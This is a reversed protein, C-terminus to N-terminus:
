NKRRLFNTTNFVYAYRHDKNYAYDLESQIYMGQTPDDEPLENSLVLSEDGGSIIYKFCPKMSHHVLLKNFSSAVLWGQILAVVLVLVM